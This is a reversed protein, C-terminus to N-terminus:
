PQRIVGLKDVSVALGELRLGQGTSGCEAGDFFPGIDGANEQHAMYMVSYQNGDNSAGAVEIQFAEDRLSEGQTGAYTGGNVWDMWGRDQVHVRYTLSLTGPPNVLTVEFGEM